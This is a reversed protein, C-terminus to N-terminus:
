NNDQKAKAEKVAEKTNKLQDTTEDIKTNAYQTAAGGVMSSLVFAGVGITVKQFTKLDAPTTAKVANTVIAGTGMSVILDSGAKVIPLINM